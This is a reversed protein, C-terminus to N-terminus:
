KFFLLLFGLAPMPIIMSGEGLTRVLSPFFADEFQLNHNSEQGNYNLSANNSCENLDLVTHKTHSTHIQSVPCSKQLRASSHLDDSHKCKKNCM